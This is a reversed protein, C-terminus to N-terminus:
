PGDLCVDYTTPPGNSPNPTVTTPSPSACTPTPRGYPGPTPPEPPQDLPRARTPPAESTNSDVERLLWDTSHLEWRAEEDRIIAGGKGIPVVVVPAGDSPLVGLDLAAIRDPGGCEDTDERIAELDDSSLELELEWTTGGDVSHEVEVGDALVGDVVDDDAPIRWCERRNTPDCQVSVTQDSPSVEVREEEITRTTDITFTPEWSWSALVLRQERERPRGRFDAKVRSVGSVRMGESCSTAATALVAVPLLAM